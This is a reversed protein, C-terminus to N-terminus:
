EKRLIDDIARLSHDTTTVIIMDGEHFVTQGSPALRHGDQTIAAAILVSEKIPLEMLKRGIIASGAPM